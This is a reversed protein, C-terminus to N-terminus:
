HLAQHHEHGRQKTRVPAVHEGGGKQMTSGFNCIKAEVTTEVGCLAQVQGAVTGGTTAKDGLCFCFKDNAGDVHSGRALMPLGHGIMELILHLDREKSSAVAASGGTVQQVVSARRANCNDCDNSDDEESDEKSDNANRFRSKTKATVM